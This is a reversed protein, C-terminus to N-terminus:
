PWKLKKELMNADKWFAKETLDWIYLRTVFTQVLDLTTNINISYSKLFCMWNTSATKISAFVKPWSSKGNMKICPKNERIRSCCDQQCHGFFNWYICTTSNRKSNNGQGQNNQGWNSNNHNNNFCRQNSRNQNNSNSHFNSNNCQFAKVEQEPMSTTAMIKKTAEMRHQTDAKDLTIKNLCWKGLIKHTNQMFYNYFFLTLPTRDTAYAKMASHSFGVNIGGALRDPKNTYLAYVTITSVRSFYDWTRLWSLPYKPSAMLSSATM